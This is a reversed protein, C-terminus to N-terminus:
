FDTNSVGEQGNRTGLARWVGIDVTNAIFRVSGDCLLSHVGGPHKSRAAVDLTLLDALANPATSHPLGGRCDVGPDNPGRRHNYMSHGPAAYMWRSGRDTIFPNGLHCQSVYDTLPPATTKNDNGPTLIVDNIPVGDSQYTESICITQSTGDLIDRARVASNEFFIGDSNAVGYFTGTNMNYDHVADKGQIAFHTDAPCLFVGVMRQRVTSNELGTDAGTGFNIANYLAPQDLYPLLHAHVSFCLQKRDVHSRLRGPPFVGLSSHYAQMAIGIQKLNNRCEARRAAERAMQVAPLLLAVLVGIIAIVVLLEILTFAIRKPSKM